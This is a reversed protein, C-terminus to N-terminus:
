PNLGPQSYIRLQTLRPLPTTRYNSKDTFYYDENSGSVQTLEIMCDNQRAPADNPSETCHGSRAQPPQSEESVLTGNVTHTQADPQQDLVGAEAAAADPADVRQLRIAAPDMLFVVDSSIAGGLCKGSKAVATVM